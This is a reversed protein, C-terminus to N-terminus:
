SLIETLTRGEAPAAPLDLLTALTPAVDRSTIPGLRGGRRLGRGAAIFLARNDAHMPRQGHTGRYRPPGHEDDGRMEDSLMFGPAAELLLDGARPNEDPTPLGLPAYEDPTWVASVGELAALEPRLDRAMRARDGDLAYVWGAGHNMVFRAQAHALAGAADLRLVGRRRLRVNPRIERTVPLFGHDSVVVVSTRDLGDAGLAALVRGVLGDIYAIAWYAEPSRPGYLHQHSDACLFHVLLVDPTHRRLVDIALDAVMADKLFRRPLEAWEGQREIPYGLDALEKWVAPATHAEFIEQNKFFPLNFDLSAARRTAPWDIAATRLGAAHARDYITPAQVLDAADYVPDGTFDEAGATARNLIHNSVVGHARPSVGTVLSVHSPWTTSVFVTAMGDAVAGREALGRLEPMRAAPDNWYFHALGDISILIVRPMVDDYDV